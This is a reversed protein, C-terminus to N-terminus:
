LGIVMGRIRVENPVSFKYTGVLRWGMNMGYAPFFGSSVQGNGPPLVAGPILDTLAASDFPNYEAIRLYYDGPDDTYQALGPSSFALGPANFNGGLWVSDGSPLTLFATMSGIPYPDAFTLSISSIPSRNSGLDVTGGRDFTDTRPPQGPRAITAIARAFPFVDVYVDPGNPSIRAHGLLTDTNLDVDTPHTTRVNQRWTSFAFRGPSGVTSGLDSPLFTQAYSGRRFGTALAPRPAENDTGSQYANSRLVTKGSSVWYTQLWQFGNQPGRLVRVAVHDDGTESPAASADLVELNFAFGRDVRTRAIPLSGHASETWTYGIDPSTLWYDVNIRYPRVDAADVVRLWGWDSNGKLVLYYRTLANPTSTFTAGRWGSDTETGGNHLRTGFSRGSLFANRDSAAYGVVPADAVNPNGDPFDRKWIEWYEHQSMGNARVGVDFGQHQSRKVMELRGQPNAMEPQSGTGANLYVSVGEYPNGGSYSAHGNRNWYYSNYWFDELFGRQIWAKVWFDARKPVGWRGRDRPDLGYYWRGAWGISTADAYSGPSPYGRNWYSAYLIASGTTFTNQPEGGTARSWGGDVFVSNLTDNLYNGHYYFDNRGGPDRQMGFQHLPNPQSNWWYWHGDGPAQFRNEAQVSGDVRLTLSIDWTSFGYGNGYVTVGNAGQNAISDASGIYFDYGHYNYRDLPTNFRFWLAPWGPARYPFASTPALVLMAASLLLAKVFTIPSRGFM